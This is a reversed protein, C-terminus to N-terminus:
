NSATPVVETKDESTEEKEEDKEFTVPENTEDDIFPAEEEIDGILNQTEKIIQDQLSQIPNGDRDVKTGTKRDVYNLDEDVFGYKKLWKNEPLRKEFEGDVGFFKDLVSLYAQEYAHTRKDEKLADLSEWYNKGSDAYVTALYIIYDMKEQEALFEVTINEFARRKESVKIMEKRKDMVEICLKRGESLKQGGKRIQDLLRDVDKNLETLKNDDEESWVGADRLYQDLNQRLLFKSNERMLSAVKLAYVKDAEEFDKYQLAKTTLKVVKGENNAIEFEKRM